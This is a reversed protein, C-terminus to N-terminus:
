ICKVKKRKKKIFFPLRFKCAMDVKEWRLYIFLSLTNQLSFPLWVLFNLNFFFWRVPVSPSCFFRLEDRLRQFKSLSPTPWFESRIAQKQLLLVNWGHLCEHGYFYLFIYACFILILFLFFFPARIPWLERQDPAAVAVFYGQDHLTVHCIIIHIIAQKRGGLTKPNSTFISSSFNPYTPDVLRAPCWHKQHHSPRVLHTSRFLAIPM